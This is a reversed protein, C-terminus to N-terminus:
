WPTETPILIAISRLQTAYLRTTTGICTTWVSYSVRLCLSSFVFLNWSTRLYSTSMRKLVSYFLLVLLTKKTCVSIMQGLTIQLPGLNQNAPLWFCLRALTFVISVAFLGESLNIPDVSMWYFRDLLVFLYKLDKLIWKFVRYHYYSYSSYKGRNLWYFTKFVNIQDTETKNALDGVLQWFDQSTLKEKEVTVIILTYFKLGFSCVFLIILVCTFLNSMNFVYEKIGFLIAKKLERLTM